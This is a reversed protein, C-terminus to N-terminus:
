NATAVFAISNTITSAAEAAPVRIKLVYAVDTAYAGTATIPDADGDSITVTGFSGGSLTWTNVADTAMTATLTYTASSSNALDAHVTFPTAVTFYSTSVTGSDSVVQTLGSVAAAGYMQVTGFPLSATSSLSGTVPLGSGNTKFYLNISGVVSATVGMSGSGTSGDGQAYAVGTFAFASLVSTLIIRNKM